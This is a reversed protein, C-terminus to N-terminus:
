PESRLSREAKLRLMGILSDVHLFGDLEDAEDPSLDGTQAKAALQEYRVHDEQRFDLTKVYRALVYPMSGSEPQIVREFLQVSQATISMRFDYWVPSM